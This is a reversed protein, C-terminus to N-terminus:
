RWYMHHIDEVPRYDWRPPHAVKRSEHIIRRREFSLQAKRDIEAPDFHDLVLEKMGQEVERHKKHGALNNWEEPDDSVNFLQVQPDDKGQYIYTYKFDGQRAMFCTTSVGESYNECFVFREPDAQGNMQPLLSKGDMPLYEKIGAMELITPAVDVISSLILFM